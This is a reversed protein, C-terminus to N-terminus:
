PNCANFVAGAQGECCAEPSCIDVQARLCDWYVKAAAVCAESGSDEEACSRYDECDAVTTMANCHDEAVCFARCADSASTSPSSVEAETQCAGGDQDGGSGTGSGAGSGGNANGTSAGGEQSNGQSGGDTTSTPGDDGGCAVLYLCGWLVTASCRQSFHM